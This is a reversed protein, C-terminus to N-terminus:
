TESAFRTAPKNTVKQSSSTMYKSDELSSMVQSLNCLHEIESPSLETGGQDDDM